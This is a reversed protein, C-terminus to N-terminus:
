TLLEFSCYNLRVITCVFLLEFPLLEFSFGGFTQNLKQQKLYEFLGRELFLFAKSCFMKKGSAFSKLMVWLLDLGSKFYKKLQVLATCAFSDAFTDAHVLFFKYLDAQALLGAYVQFQRGPTKITQSSM